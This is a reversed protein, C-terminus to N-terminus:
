ERVSVPFLLNIPQQNVVGEIQVVFEGPAGFIMTTGFAGAYDASRSSQLEDGDFQNLLQGDPALLSLRCHHCESRSIVSDGQKIQLWVESPQNAIPHDNPAVHFSVGLDNVQQFQYAYVVTASAALCSTISVLGLTQRLLFGQMMTLNQSRLLVM